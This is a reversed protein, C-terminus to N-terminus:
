CMLSLCHLGQDSAVNHPMQDPGVSNACAQRDLFPVYCIFCPSVYAIVPFVLYSLYLDPGLQEFSIIDNTLTHNFSKVMLYPMYASVKASFIHTAKASECKKLM